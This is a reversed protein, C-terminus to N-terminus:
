AAGQGERGIMRLIEPLDMGGPCARSCRGCGTCLVEGFRRPYISFKHSVRQRYRAHQDARPNHGSGHLTFRASQCTDWNRRRVGANMASSEDVIDFCHCTPCVSACAGCGHCRHAIASWIPHDFHTALWEELGKCDIALRAAVKEKAKAQYGFAEEEHTADGFLKDHAAILEQGRETLVAVHYGDGAPTLMCDAGRDSGPGLGVAACFCSEDGGDCALTVITTAERRGFWREDRYDWGMVKDVISPAAADCPRALLVTPTPKQEPEQLHVGKKTTKWAFLVETAPLFVGKASQQPLADWLIEDASQISRYEVPGNAVRAPAVVRKGGAVWQSVLTKLGSQSLSRAQKM